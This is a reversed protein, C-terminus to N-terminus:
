SPSPTCRVNINDNVPGSGSGVVVVVVVAADDGSWNTGAKVPQAQPNQRERRTAATEGVSETQAETVDLLPLFTSESRVETIELRM